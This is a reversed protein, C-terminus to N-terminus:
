RLDVIEVGPHDKKDYTFISEPVKPNPTFSNIVYTFHSGNKDFIMASYILKRAKDIALRIKFFEKKSDEPTLDIMQCLHGDIREDGTYIYKYGHEYVTFIQAPNLNGESHDVDNLEVENDKKIYTWQSKGDSIVEQSSSTKDGPTNIIVKFKNAKPRSILTGTQSEKIGAQPDDMKFTFEAKILNYSRYKQSVANMIKRADADKQAFTTNVIAALMLTSILLKKM